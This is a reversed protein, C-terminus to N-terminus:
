PDVHVSGHGVHGMWFLSGNSGSVWSGDVWQRSQELLGRATNSLSPPSSLLAFPLASFPLFIFLPFCPLSIPSFSSCGRSDTYFKFARDNLPSYNLSDWNVFITV